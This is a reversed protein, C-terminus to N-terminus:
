LLEDWNLSGPLRDLLLRTVPKRLGSISLRELIENGFSFTLLSRAVTDDLGRTRLYFLQSEDIQGVTAGHTCKVDDAYIELEPKTDIEARDSLLLNDSSQKADINQSNRRVVVKGNFVGRGRDGIIGKFNEQSTTRPAAHDVCLHNDVHQGDNALFVGYLDCSAGEGSLEVQVDNRVLQGGLDIYCAELSAGDAIRASLLETHTDSSGCEQIRYITLRAGTELAVESVLNSWTPTEDKGILSMILTLEANEALDVRLRPQAAIGPRGSSSFILHLPEGLEQGAKVRISLGDSAFATNIAALPAAEFEPTGISTGASWADALRILEIGPHSRWESTNWCPLGDVFYVAPVSELWNLTPRTNTAASEPVAPFVPDFNAEALRKLDTYRWNEMRRTPFGTAAFNAMATKRAETVASSGPLVAISERFRTELRQPTM